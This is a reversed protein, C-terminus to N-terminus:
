MFLLMYLKACIGQIFPARYIFKNSNSLVARAMVNVISNLSKKEILNFEKLQKNIVKKIYEDSFIYENKEKNIIMFQNFGTRYAGPEILKISINYGADKVEKRLCSFMSILASKTSCYAGLFPIPMIGAVSSTVVVKGGKNGRTKIYEKTLVLTGFFNVDFNSRIDSISLDILSGGVGIGAQNVLCDIDYKGIKKIDKKNTIDLRMVIANKEYNLEKLRELVSNIEKTHHTCMYVFHGKEILKIALSYGIGSTAGTILVNM